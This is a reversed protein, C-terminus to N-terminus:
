TYSCCLSCKRLRIGEDNTTALYRSKVASIIGSGKGALVASLGYLLRQLFTDVTWQRCVARTNTSANTIIAMALCHFDRTAGSNRACFDM